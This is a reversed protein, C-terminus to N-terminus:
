SPVPLIAWTHGWMGLQPNAPLSARPSTRAIYFSLYFDSVLFLSFTRLQRFVGSESSSWQQCIFYVQVFIHLFSVTSFLHNKWLLSYSRWGKNRKLCLHIKKDTGPFPLCYSFCLSEVQLLLLGCQHVRERILPNVLRISNLRWLWRVRELQGWKASPCAYSLPRSLSRPYGSSHLSSSSELGPSAQSLHMYWKRGWSEVWVWFVDLMGLARGSPELSPDKRAEHQSRTVAPLGQHGQSSSVDGRGRGRTDRAGGQTDTHKHRFKGRWVLVSTM